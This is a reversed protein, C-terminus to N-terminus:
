AENAEADLEIGLNGLGELIQRRIPWANEGIGGTFVVAHARGLAALYAGIYKRVRYCFVDLALRARPNSPAADLLTRVDNSLGSLGLLGSKKNLLRDIEDLSLGHSRALHLVIAPDIDGCRTGMVLGELPTLGMTTDVSKGDAVAAMSCGNGLHCTIGHFEDLPVGLMEAARAAVFRHSTGHFGYRRIRQEAYLEYPLAYTYAHAPMSEHFATDFVGVNPKGPFARNACRIGVLNPPNHLPALHSYQELAGVVDDDIRVSGTFGEGGHVVRHGIADIEDPSALVGHTPHLLARRIHAFTQEHDAIPEEYSLTHDGATHTVASREEGIREVVGKALLTEDAMDFLQYKISSSGCNIVLIKM